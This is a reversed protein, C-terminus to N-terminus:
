QFPNVRNPYDTMDLQTLEPLQLTSIYNLTELEDANLENIPETIKSITTPLDSWYVSFGIAYNESGQDNEYIFNTITTLPVTNTASNIIQMIQELSAGSIVTEMLMNNVVENNLKGTTSTSFKEITLGDLSNLTNKIVSWKYLVPNKDPLALVTNSSAPLINTQVEGLSALKQELQNQTANAEKIRKLGNTIRGDVVPYLVLSLVMVILIVVVPILLPKANSKLSQIQFKSNEM